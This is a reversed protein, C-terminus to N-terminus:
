VKAAADACWGDPSYALKRGMTRALVEAHTVIVGLQVAVAVGVKVGVGVAVTNGLAVGVGAAVGVRPGRIIPCIVSACM